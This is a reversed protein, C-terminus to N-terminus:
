VVSKRDKYNYIFYQRNTLNLASVGGKHWNPSVYNQAFQISSQFSSTWYRREPIFKVPADVDDISKQEKEIKILEPKDTSKEIVQAKIIDNPLDEQTYRFYEPHNTRVYNYAIQQIKNRLIVDQFLTTDPTFEASISNKPTIFSRDFIVAEEPLLSGKLLLPTFLPNVITTDRLTIWPKVITEPDRKWDVWYQAEPSLSIEDKTILRLLEESPTDQSTYTSNLKEFQARLSPIKELDSEKLQPRVLTDPEVVQTARNIQTNNIITNIEQAQMQNGSLLLLTFLVLFTGRIM